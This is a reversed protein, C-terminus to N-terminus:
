MFTIFLYQKRLESLKGGKGDVVALVDSPFVTEAEGNDKTDVDTMMGGGSSDATASSTEM